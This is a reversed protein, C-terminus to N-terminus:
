VRKAEKNEALDLWVTLLRPMTQYIYKVGRQLAEHYNVCTFYNYSAIQSLDTTGNALTDYYRGLHFFPAELTAGLETAQKFRGIM